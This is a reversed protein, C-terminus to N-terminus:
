PSQRLVDHAFQLTAAVGYKLASEDIDFSPNHHPAGAGTENRAIGLLALVGPYKSLYCGMTESAMWPECTALREPGLAAQVSGAALAALAGDNIVAPHPGDITVSAECRHAAATHTVIREVSEIMREGLNPDFFRSTGALSASDPIVNGVEGARFMGITVVGVDTPKVERAPISCLDTVAQAACLLPDITQDPRSGHGGSGKLTVSFATMGSMRPGPEVSIAGSPLESYVHIGWVARPNRAQLALMMPAIGGTTEEAQEFCLLVDGPLEDRAEALGRAVGLLMATHADHGCLHACGPVSSIIAKPGALNRESEQIPLADMDARLMIANGTSGSGRLTAIIGYEGVIEYPISMSELEAIVRSSTRKEEGSPEPHRHFERRLDIVYREYKEALLQANM